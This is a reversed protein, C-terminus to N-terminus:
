RIYVARLLELMATALETRSLTRSAAAADDQDNEPRLQERSSDGMGNQSHYSAMVLPSM